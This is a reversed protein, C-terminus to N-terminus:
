VFNSWLRCPESNKFNLLLFLRIKHKIKLGDYSLMGQQYLLKVVQQIKAFVAKQEAVNKQRRVAQNLMMKFRQNLINKRTQWVKDPTKTQCLNYVKTIVREYDAVNTLSFPQHMFSQQHQFYYYLQVDLLVLKRANQMVEVTFPVDEYRTGETFRINKLLSAKYLKATSVSRIKKDHLFAEFPQNYISSKIKSNNLPLFKVCPIENVNKMGAVAVDANDKIASSYLIKLMDPHVYDDADVFCVYDAACNDLGCNRASSVGRNDQSFVKIRADAEAYEALIKGSEDSSGDNVCILEFDAMSQRLVSDLCRPLYPAANYIPIIVSIKPM